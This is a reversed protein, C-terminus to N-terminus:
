LKMKRLAIGVGGNVLQPQLALDLDALCAGTANLDKEKNAEDERARQHWIGDSVCLKGQRLRLGTHQKPNSLVISETRRSVSRRERYHDHRCGDAATTCCRRLEIQTIERSLLWAGNKATQARSDQANTTRTGVKKSNAGPRQACRPRLLAMMMM